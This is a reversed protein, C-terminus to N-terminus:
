IHGLEFECGFPVRLIFSCFYFALTTRLACPSNFFFLFSLSFPLVM